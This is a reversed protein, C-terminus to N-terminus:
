VTQYSLVEFTSFEARPRINYFMKPDYNDLTQVLSSHKREPLGEWGRRINAPLALLRGYLPTGSLVKVRILTKSPAKSLYAGAKSVFM